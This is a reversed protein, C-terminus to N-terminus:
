RAVGDAGPRSAESQSADEHDAGAPRADAYDHGATGPGAAAAMGAAAVAAAAMGAAAAGAPGPAAGAAAPAAPPQGARTVAAAGPGVASAALPDEPDSALEEATRLPSVSATLVQANPLFVRGEATRMRVYTITFETVVGVITGGLTGSSVRVLDGVRFPRAFQIMVGAFLNALSQQAAITVLVATVTGGVVLKGVPFSLMTLTVPAVICFGALIVVYRAIGSYGAGIFRELVSRAWSGFAFTSVLAFVVFVIAGCVTIMHGVAISGTYGVRAAQAPTKKDLELGELHVASAAAVALVLTSIARLPRNHQPRETGEATM